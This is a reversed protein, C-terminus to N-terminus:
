TKEEFAPALEAAAVKAAEVEEATWRCHDACFYHPEGCNEKACTTISWMFEELVDRAAAKDMWGSVTEGTLANLAEEINM